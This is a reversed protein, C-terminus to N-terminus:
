NFEEGDVASGGGFPPVNRVLLDGLPIFRLKALGTIVPDYLDITGHVTCQSVILFTSVDPPGVSPIDTNTVNATHVGLHPVGLVRACLRLLFREQCKDTCILLPVGANDNATM